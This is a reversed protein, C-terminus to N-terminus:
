DNVLDSFEPHEDIYSRIFPCSPVVKLGRARIDDLASRALRSGIGRGGYAEDVEAHVIARRGPLDRYSAFGVRRGDLSVEYRSREANDVVTVTDQDESV